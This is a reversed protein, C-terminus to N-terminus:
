PSVEIAKETAVKAQSLGVGLLIITAAVVVQVTIPENLVLWGALVAIIPMIYLAMGLVSPRSRGAAFNWTIISVTGVTLMGVLSWVEFPPLAVLKQIITTNLLPLAPVAILANALSTIKLAGYKEILPKSFVVNIAWFVSAGLIFLCGLLLEQHRVTGGTIDDGWVLLASGAFSVVLGLLTFRNLTESGVLWALLAILMPMTSMILTGVGAPALAFGLSSFSYYGLLGIFTVLLLRPWDARDIRANSMAFLLVAFVLGSMILRSVLFDWGGLALAVSRVMVPMVGWVFITFALALLPAHRSATM